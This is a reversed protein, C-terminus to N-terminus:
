KSVPRWNHSFSPKPWWLLLKGIGPM